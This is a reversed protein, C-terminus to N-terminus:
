TLLLKFGAQAFHHDCTLADTIGQEDMVALSICDTLSWSKDLRNGFLELGAELLHPTAPIVRTKRDARMMTALRLFLSREAPACLYNGLEVLVYETTVLTGRWQGGISVATQHWRDHPNAFAVYFATDSFAVSM